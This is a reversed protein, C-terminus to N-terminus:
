EHTLQGHEEYITLFIKLWNTLNKRIVARNKRSILFALTSLRRANRCRRCFRM